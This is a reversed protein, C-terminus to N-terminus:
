DTPFAFLRKVQGINVPSFDSSNSRPVDNYSGTIYYLRDFFLHAARKVQGATVAAYNHNLMSLGNVYDTLAPDWLDIGQMETPYRAVLEQYAKQILSKFQGQNVMAYDKPVAGQQVVSQTAWWAPPLPASLYTLPVTTYSQQGWEDTVYITVEQRIYEGLNPRWTASANLPSDGSSSTGIDWYVQLFPHAGTGGTVLASYTSRQWLRATFSQPAAVTPPAPCVQISVQQVTSRGFDDTLEFELTRPVPDLDAVTPTWTFTAAVSNV